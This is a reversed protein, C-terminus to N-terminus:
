VGGVLPYLKIMLLWYICNLIFIFVFYIGERKSGVIANPCPAVVVVVM